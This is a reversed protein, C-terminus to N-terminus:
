PELTPCSAISETNIDILNRFTKQFEPLEVVSSHFSKRFQKVLEVVMDFKALLDFVELIPQSNHTM